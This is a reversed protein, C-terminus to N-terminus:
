LDVVETSAALQADEARLVCSRCLQATGGLDVITHAFVGRRGCM